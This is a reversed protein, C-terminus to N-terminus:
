NIFGISEVFITLKEYQGIFDYMEGLTLGCATAVEEPYRYLYIAKYFEKDNITKKTSFEEWITMKVVFRTIFGNHDVFTKFNKDVVAKQGMNLLGAMHQKMCDQCLEKFTPDKTYMKSMEKVPKFISNCSKTFGMGLKLSAKFIALEADTIQIM